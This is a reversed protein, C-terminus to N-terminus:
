IVFLLAIGAPLLWVMSLSQREGCRQLVAWLRLLGRRSTLPLLSAGIMVWGLMTLAENINVLRLLYNVLRDFDM